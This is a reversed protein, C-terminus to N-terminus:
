PRASGDVGREVDEEQTVSRVAGVRGAAADCHWVSRGAADPVGHLGRGYGASCHQAVGHVWAVLVAVGGLLVAVICVLVWSGAVIGFLEDKNGFRSISAIGFAAFGGLMFAVICVLMVTEGVPKALERLMGVNERWGLGSWWGTVALGCAVPVLMSISPIDRRPSATRMPMSPTGPVSNLTSTAPRGGRPRGSPPGCHTTRSACRERRHRESTQATPRRCTNQTRGPCMLTLERPMQPRATVHSASRKRRGARRTIGRTLLPVSPAPPPAPTTTCTAPQPSRSPMSSTSTTAARVRGRWTLESTLPSPANNERFLTVPGPPLLSTMPWTMWPAASRSTVRARTGPRGPSERIKYGCSNASFRHEMNWGGPSLADNTRGCERM